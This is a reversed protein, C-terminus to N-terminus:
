PMSLRYFRARYNTWYPDSFCSAGTTLTNTALPSWAPNLLNTCAEVVIVFNNTGTITFGYCNTQVGFNSASIQPNWLMTPWGGFTAGWNTTGPLYYITLSNDGNFVNQGGLSPCNGKFYVNTLSTDDLFAYNGINTVSNGITVSTLNIASVFAYNGISTVSNPITVSTMATVGFAGDGISTVSNPITVNTLGTLDFAGDGISTVSNGIVVSTLGYSEWFGCYGISKVGNGIVVNTLNQCNSFASDGINTVSDPITVSTLGTNDFAGQGINTVSDPITVSTLGTDCDFAHDGIIIVSNPIAINTLGACLGFAGYGINTVSNPIAYSEAKGAPFQILTTQSKDFLVGGLSSYAPNLADVTIATLNECAVFVSEGINTVSAPITISTLSTCEDFANNGISTVSNPITVAGGPGTYGTITITGDANVTYNFPLVAAPVGGFNTSWGTTGPWYYVTVNNDFDFVDSGISPANGMFYVSTLNTCVGFAGYGINTVSNPITVSTLSACYFFAENGISTVLSAGNIINPITVAGGPGTYGTITVTNAPFNTTYNNTLILSQGTYADRAVTTMAQEQSHITVGDPNFQQALAVVIFINQRFTIMDAIKRIPDQRQIENIQGTGSPNAVNAFAQAMQDGSEPANSTFLSQFSSYPGNPQSLITSILAQVNPDGAHVTLDYGGSSNTLGIGMNNYLSLLVNANPTNLCVLGHTPKLTQSGAVWGNTDRVTMRDLLFAGYDYSLINIPEWFWNATNWDADAGQLEGQVDGVPIHGIEGITEMPGNRWFLPLGSKVYPGNSWPTSCCNTRGLTNSTAPGDWGTHQDTVNNADPTLWYKGMCNARPDNVQYDHEDTIQVPGTNDATRCMAQNILYIQQGGAPNYAQNGQAKVVQAEFWAPNNSSIVVNGPFTIRSSVPSTYCRFQPHQGDYNYFSMPGIATTFSYQSNGVGNADWWGNAPNSSPAISFNNTCICVRLGFGDTTEVTDPYFIYWLEVAVEYINNTGSGAVKQLCVESILPTDEYGQNDEYAYDTEQKQIIQPIRDPDLYNIVNCSIYKWHTNDEYLPKLNAFAGQGSICQKLGTYYNTFAASPNGFGSIVNNYYDLYHYENQFNAVYGGHAVTLSDQWEPTNTISNVNFKPALTISGRGIQNQNTYMLDRGPDYSNVFFSSIPNNIGSNGALALISAYPGQASRSSFFLNTNLIDPLASLDIENINTSSFSRPSGGAYNADLFASCNVVIYAMRGTAVNGNNTIVLSKWYCNNAAALADNLLAPPIDNSLCCNLLGLVNSTGASAM